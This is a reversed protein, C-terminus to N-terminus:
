VVSKRDESSLSLSQANLGTTLRFPTGRQHASRDLASEYVDRPGDRNSIFYVRAGDHSWVPSQHVYSQDTLPYAAGGNAPILVIASPAANGFSAGLRMAM